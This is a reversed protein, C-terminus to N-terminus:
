IISFYRPTIYFATTYRVQCMNGRWVKVSRGQGTTIFARRLAPHSRILFCANWRGEGVYAYGALPLGDLDLGALPHSSAHNHQKGPEPVFLSPNEADGRDKYLRTEKKKSTKHKPM